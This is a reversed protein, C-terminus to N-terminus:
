RKRFAIMAGATIILGMGLTQVGSISEGWLLFSWLASIPLIVYEIISVRSAEALQYGKVLLGIAILSGLAQVFTWGLFRPTPTVWGRLLFGDV